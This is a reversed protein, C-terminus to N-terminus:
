IGLKKSLERLAKEISEDVVKDGLKEKFRRLLPSAVTIKRQVQTQAKQCALRYAQEDLNGLALAIECWCDYIQSNIEAIQQAILRPGQDEIQSSVIQMKYKIMAIRDLRARSRSVWEQPSVNDNRLDLVLPLCADNWESTLIEFKVIQKFDSQSLTGRANYGYSYAELMKADSIEAASLSACIFVSLIRFWSKTKKLM